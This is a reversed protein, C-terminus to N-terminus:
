SRLTAVIGILKADSPLRLETRARERDGPKFRELDTGTPVAIVRAPDLALTEILMKALAASTTVVRAPVRGYLWRNMRGSAVRGSIHRLRVIAPRPRLFRTALAVLWSDSSSHSVVVDPAVERILARLAALSSPRRRDLAVPYVPIRRRKAMEFV